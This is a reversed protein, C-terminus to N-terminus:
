KAAPVVPHEPCVAGRVDGANCFGGDACGQVPEGGDPDYRFDALGFTMLGPGGRFHQIFHVPEVLAEGVDHFLCVGQLV